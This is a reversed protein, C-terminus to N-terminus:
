KLLDLLRSKEAECKEKSDFWYEDLMPCIDYRVVHEIWPTDTPQACFYSHGICFGEGLSDDKAITGNLAKVAEVVKAIRPDTHHEIEAKFGETDFGPSMPHFSFRRRLAYDILALSRDATNMMGIIYLNNPVAFLENRYALKIPQGRYNKEILMLLEGFIKSLNGRNIEDIIFFFEKDPQAEAKKCFSYFSGTRLEFGGDSTPRYGMIFDEYSYNQHFQVMEIRTDDKKQMMCYALRKASFTKGVGPAGQLIVNKKLRLLQMLESLKQDTMFVESLFQDKTYSEFDENQKIPNEEPEPNDQRILDILVEYEDKTLKFFSGNQNKIFEMDRLEDLDKFDFWSIPAELTETKEYTITEGDSAKVVKALAVIKKVPNAEYGIVIDGERANDFNAPVRRKNGKDNKVTYQVTDGVQLDGFSWYKPSAVLWWYQPGSYEQAPEEVKPLESEGKLIAEEIKEFSEDSMETLTKQPLQSGLIDKVDWEGINTWRIKRIHRHKQRTVDFAYESEVIGRGLITNAGRKAFVIDGNAMVHSFEWVCLKSNKASSENEPFAGDMAEDAEEKTSFQALDGVEDWGISIINESQCEDWLNAGEGPAYIWKKVQHETVIPNYYRSIWFGFDDVITALGDPKFYKDPFADLMAEYSALPENSLRFITAMDNKIEFSRVAESPKGNAKPPNPIGVKKCAAAIESWKYIPYKGPYCLWLYTSIANTNQYHMKGPSLRQSLADSSDMFGKIREEVDSTEDFLAKFMERVTDPEQKAYSTIMLRPFASQSVLLNKTDSLSKELMQAFDSANINWNDQFTKLAIWKYNEREWNEAFAASYQQQADQLIYERIAKVLEPRLTWRFSGDGKKVPVGEGMAVPWYTISDDTDRIEIDGIKALVDRGFWMINASHSKSIGGFRKAVGVCTNQHNSSYYFALLTQLREPTTIKPDRLLETWQEKSVPLNCRCVNKEYYTKITQM